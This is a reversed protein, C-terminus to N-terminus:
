NCTGSDPGPCGCLFKHTRGESRLAGCSWEVTKLPLGWVTTAPARGGGPRCTISCAIDHVPSNPHKKPGLAHRHRYPREQAARKRTRAWIPWGDPKTRSWPLDSLVRDTGFFQLVGLVSNSTSFFTGGMPKNLAARADRLKNAYFATGFLRNGRAPHQASWV